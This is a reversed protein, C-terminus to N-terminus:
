GPLGKKFGESFTKISEVLIGTLQESDKVPVSSKKYGGFSDMNIAAKRLDESFNSELLAQTTKPKENCIFYGMNKKLLQDHNKKIFDRIPKYIKEYRVGSGLIITDFEEINPNENEINCTACNNLEKSLLNACVESAGSKTAYLILSTM